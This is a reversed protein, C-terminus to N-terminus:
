SSGRRRRAEEQLEAMERLEDETIQDFNTDYGNWILRPAVRAILDRAKAQEAENFLSLDPPWHEQETQPSIQTALRDVQRKLSTITTM